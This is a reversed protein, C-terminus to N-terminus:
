QTTKSLLTKVSYSWKTYQTIHLNNQANLTSHERSHPYLTHTTNQTRHEASNPLTAATVLPTRTYDRRPARRRRRRRRRRRGAVGSPRAPNVM